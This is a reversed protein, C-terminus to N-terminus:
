GSTYDLRREATTRFCGSEVPPLMTKLADAPIIEVVLNKYLRWGLVRQIGDARHFVVLSIDNEMAETNALGDIFIGTRDPDGDKFTVSVPPIGPRSFIARKTGDDAHLRQMTDLLDPLLDSYSTYQMRYANM